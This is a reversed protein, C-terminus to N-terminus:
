IEDKELVDTRTPCVGSRGGLNEIYSYNKIKEIRGSEQITRLTEDHLRAGFHLLWLSGCAM